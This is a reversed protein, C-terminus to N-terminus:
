IHLCIEVQGLFMNKVEDYRATQLSHTILAKRGLLAFLNYVSSYLVSIFVLIM